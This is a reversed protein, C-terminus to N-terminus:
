KIWRCVGGDGQGGYRSFEVDRLSEMEEVGRRKFKREGSSGMKQVGRRKLEGDGLIRWRTCDEDGRTGIEHIDWISM